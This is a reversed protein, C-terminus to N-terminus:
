PQDRLFRSPMNQIIEEAEKVTREVIEKVTPLDDVLGAVEGAPLLARPGDGRFQADWGRNEMDVVERAVASLDDPEGLYVGPAKSVTLRAFETAAENKVWRLPGVVGRAVITDREGSKVVYDKHVQNFDSERTALLRTGMQVGIAGLALAAVLSAGNAFGGAGIVPIGVARVIAPLLVMTHVPEWAVHGGGEQGSAIVADVGARESRQAHRVSPVVHFWRVGSPKILETLPLPDGASTIIVRLREKMETDEDRAEITTQIIERAFGAMETSVMCNIGFIGKTERTEEKVRHLARKMQEQWTGGKGDTLTKVLESIGEGRRAPAGRLYGFGSTSIIGLVGANAAAVALRNTSYPGMGAQIIPYKIGMMDCLETQLIRKEM